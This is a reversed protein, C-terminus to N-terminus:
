RILGLLRGFWAQKKFLPSFPKIFSYYVPAIKAILRVKRAYARESLGFFKLYPALPSAPVPKQKEKDLRAIAQDRTIKGDRVDFSLVNELVSGCDLTRQTYAVAKKMECDFHDHPQDAAPRKWGLEKELLMKMQEEDNPHHVFYFLHEILTNDNGITLKQPLVDQIELDDLGITKLFKGARQLMMQMHEMQPRHSFSDLYDFIRMRAHPFHFKGYLQGDDLGWVVLPVNERRAIETMVLPGLISTCMHCPSVVNPLRLYGSFIKKVLPEPLKVFKHDIGLAQCVQIANNRASENPMFGYDGTIALVRLGYDKVLSYAVYAGDKGGSLGVIADYAFRNRIKEIKEVFLRKLAPYDRLTPRHKEWEICLNCIGQSNLVIGPSSTTLVCRCCRNGTM